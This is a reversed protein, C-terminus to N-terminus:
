RSGSLSCQDIAVIVALGLATWFLYLGGKGGSLRDVADHWQLTDKSEGTFINGIRKLLAGGIQAAGYFKASVIQMTGRGTASQEPSEPRAAEQKLNQAYAKRVQEDSMEAVRADVEEATMPKASGSSTETTSEQAGAQGAPVLLTLGLFFAICITVLKTQHTSM